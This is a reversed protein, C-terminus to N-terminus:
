TCVGQSEKDASCEESKTHKNSHPQTPSVKLKTPTQQKKELEYQIKTSLKKLIPEQTNKQQKAKKVKKPSKKEASQEKPKDSKKPTEYKKELNEQEKDKVLTSVEEVVKNANNKPKSMRKLFADFEKKPLTKKTAKQDHKDQKSIATKQANVKAETRENVAPKDENALGINKANGLSKKVERKQKAEVKKDDKTEKKEVLSKVSGRLEEKSKITDDKHTKIISKAKNKPVLKDKKEVTDKKNNEKHLPQHYTKPRDRNLKTNTHLSKTLQPKDKIYEKFKISNLVETLQRLEAQISSQFSEVLTSAIEEVESRQQPTLGQTTM